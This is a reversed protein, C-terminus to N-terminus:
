RWAITVEARVTSAPAPWAAAVGPGASRSCRVPRSSARRRGCRSTGTGQELDAWDVVQGAGYGLLVTAEQVRRSQAQHPAGDPRRSLLVIFGHTRNVIYAMQDLLTSYYQVFQGGSMPEGEVVWGDMGAAHNLMDMGQPLYPNPPLTNDAQIFPAGNRHTLATAMQEHSARLAADSSIESTRSCGCTSYYLEQALSPSQWDMLLGDSSGYNARVYSQFYARVAPNFQNLLYGGGM